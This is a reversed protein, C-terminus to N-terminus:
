TSVSREARPRTVPQTRRARLALVTFGAVPLLHLLLLAVSTPTDHAVLAPVASTPVFVVLVAILLVTVGRRSRRALALLVLGVALPLASKWAVDFWPILHNPEQGPPDLRMSAGLARAAAHVGLNLLTVALVLLTGDRLLSRSSAEVSRDATIKM